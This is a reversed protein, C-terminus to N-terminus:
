YGRGFKGTVWEVFAHCIDTLDDHTSNANAWTCFADVEVQKTVRLERHMHDYAVGLAYEYDSVGSECAGCMYDPGAWYGLNVGHRCYNGDGGTGTYGEHEKLGRIVNLAVRRADPSLKALLVTM